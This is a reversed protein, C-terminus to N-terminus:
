IVPLQSAMIKWFKMKDNITSEYKLAVAFAEALDRIVTCHKIGEANFPFLLSEGVENNYFCFLPIETEKSTPARYYILLGETSYRYITFPYITLIIYRTYSNCKVEQGKHYLFSTDDEFYIKLKEITM